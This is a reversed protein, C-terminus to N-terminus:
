KDKWQFSSIMHNIDERIFETIPALSDPKVVSNYYLAATFFHTTTDTLFFHVPSAAPGTWSIMLGHVGQDNGIIAQEMYNSRENIKDAIVFADRVLDDFEAKNDIPIYSCHLKANFPKMDLDFWCLQDKWIVDAYSPYAFRIPCSATDFSVYKREPFEIRPFARPRPTTHHEKCSCWCIFCLSLLLIYKM